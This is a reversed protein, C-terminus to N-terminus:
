KESESYNALEAAAIKQVPLSTDLDRTSLANIVNDFIESKELLIRQIREEISRVALFRYIVVRQEQGSRYARGIAQEEVAPNWWRDFLIVVSAAQLNLGVGGAQLSVLLVRHGASESFTALAAEREGRTLGGHYITPEGASIRTRLYKLTEVYQSFVLVKKREQQAESLIDLLVEVKASKGSAVDYNCIQKLKTILALASAANGGNASMHEALAARYASRQADSLDIRIEQELKEPLEALVDKIRRRLLFPRIAERMQFHPTHKDILGPRLFRFVSALEESRNEMPTGTLAWSRRRPLSRCALATMSSMNKIRQAEDLLVLDFDVHSSISASDARIYDYTSLTVAVPLRYCIVRDRQVGQIRFVPMQPAWKECERIWNSTLASPTIILARALEGRRWLHQLASIAQITKGLGMEDGLLAGEREILFQAGVEQYPRVKLANATLVGGPM